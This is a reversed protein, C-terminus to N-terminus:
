NIFLLGNIKAQRIKIATIKEHDNFIMISKIFKEHGNNSIAIEHTILRGSNWFQNEIAM